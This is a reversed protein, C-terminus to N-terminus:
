NTLPRSHWITVELTFSGVKTQEALINIRESGVLTPTQTVLSLKAEINKQCGKKSVRM